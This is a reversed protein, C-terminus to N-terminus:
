GQIAILNLLLMNILNKWLRKGSSTVLIQLSMVVLNKLSERSFSSIVIFAFHQMRQKVISWGIMNGLGITSFLDGNVVKGNVLIHLVL